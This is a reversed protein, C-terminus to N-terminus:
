EDTTEQNATAATEATAAAKNRSQALDYALKAKIYEFGSAYEHRMPQKDTAKAAIASLALENKEASSNLITYGLVRPDMGLYDSHRRIGENLQKYLRYTHVSGSPINMECYEKIEKLEALSTKFMKVDDFCWSIVQRWRDLKAEPFEAVKAAWAGVLGAYKEQPIGSFIMKSLMNETRVLSQHLREAHLGLRFKNINDFWAGIWHQVNPLMCTDLTVAFSPQKFSPITIQNTLSIARVLQSINKDVVQSARPLDTALMCPYRWKISGTSNLLALFVLYSEEQTLEASCHRKYYNWLHKQELYFIPHTFGHKLKLHMPVHPIKLELGSISCLVIAM